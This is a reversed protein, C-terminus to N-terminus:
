QRRGNSLRVQTQLLFLDLQLHYVRNELRAIKAQLKEIEGEAPPLDFGPIMPQQDM